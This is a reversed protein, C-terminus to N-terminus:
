TKERRRRCHTAIAGYRHMLCNRVFTESCIVIERCSLDQQSRTSWASREFWSLSAYALGIFPTGTRGAEALRRRGPSIRRRGRWSCDLASCPMPAAIFQENSNRRGSHRRSPPCARDSGPAEAWCCPALARSNTFPPTAPTPIATRAIWSRAKRVRHTIPLLRGLRCTRSRTPIGNLIFCDPLSDPGHLAPVQTRACALATAFVDFGGPLQNQEPRGALCWEPGGCILLRGASSNQLRTDELPRQM